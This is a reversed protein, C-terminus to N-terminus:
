WQRDEWYVAECRDCLWMGDVKVRTACGCQACSNWVKGVRHHRGFVCEYIARWVAAMRRM